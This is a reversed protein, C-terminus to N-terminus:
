DLNSAPYLISPAPASPHGLSITHPPRHSPPEPNPVWTCGHRIWTLIHCFLYLITFYFLSFIFILFFFFFSIPRTDVGKGLLIFEASSCLTFSDHLKRIRSLPPVPSEGWTTFHHWRSMIETKRNRTKMQIPEHAIFLHNASLNPLKSHWMIENSSFLLM